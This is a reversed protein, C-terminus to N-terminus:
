ACIEAATICITRTRWRFQAPLTRARVAKAIPTISAAAPITPDPRLQAVARRLARMGHPRAIRVRFVALTVMRERGASPITSATKVGSRTPIDRASRVNRRPRTSRTVAASMAQSSSLGITVIQSLRKSSVSTPIPKTGAASSARYIRERWINKRDSMPMASLGPTIRYPRYLWEPSWVELRMVAIRPRQM